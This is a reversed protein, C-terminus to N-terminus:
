FFDQEMHLVIILNINLKACQNPKKLSQILQTLNKKLYIEKRENEENNKTYSEQVKSKKGSKCESRSKGDEVNKSNSFGM